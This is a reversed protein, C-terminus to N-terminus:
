SISETSVRFSQIVVVDFLALFLLWDFPCSTGVGNHLVVDLKDKPYTLMELRDFWHALFPTTEEIMLTM